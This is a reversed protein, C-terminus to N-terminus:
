VRRIELTITDYLSYLNGIIRGIKDLSIKKGFSKRDLERMGSIVDKVDPTQLRLAADSLRSAFRCKVVRCSIARAHTQVAKGGHPLDFLPM